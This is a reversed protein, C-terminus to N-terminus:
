SFHRTEQTHSDLQEPGITAQLRLRDTEREPIQQRGGTGAKKSRGPGQKLVDLPYIHGQRTITVM